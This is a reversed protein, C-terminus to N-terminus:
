KLLLKDLKGEVRILWEKHERDSEDIKKDVAQVKQDLLSIREALPSTYSSIFLNAMTAIIAGITVLATLWRSLVLRSLLSHEQNDVPPTSLRGM